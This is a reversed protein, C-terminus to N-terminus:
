RQPPPGVKPIVKKEAYIDFNKKRQEKIYTSIREMTYLTDYYYNDPRELYLEVGGECKFIYIIEESFGPLLRRGSLRSFFRPLSRPVISRSCHITINLFVSYVPPVVGIQFPSSLRISLSWLLANHVVGSKAGEGEIM